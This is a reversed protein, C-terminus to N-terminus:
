TEAALNMRGHVCVCVRVCLIGEIHDFLIGQTQVQM